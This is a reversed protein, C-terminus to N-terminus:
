GKTMQKLIGDDLAGSRIRGNVIFFPTGKIKVAEALTLAASVGLDIDPARLDSQLRAMDLGAKQADAMIVHADIHDQEGMLLFHLALYKDGQKRAALAVRAAFTSDAGKIPFEIFAFRTNNKHAKYFAKVAPLSARCYPCNYDFFEVVTKKADAPGTVFAIKPNFFAKMGLKDVAEQSARDDAEQQEEQLKDAMAVVIDPHAMLYDHFAADNRVPLLGLAASAYIAAVAIIAGGLGGIAAFKWESKM